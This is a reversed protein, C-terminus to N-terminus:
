KKNLKEIVGNITGLFRFPLLKSEEITKYLGVVHEFLQIGDCEAIRYFSEVGDYRVDIIYTDFDYMPSGSSMAVKIIVDEYHAVYTQTLTINSWLLKGNKTAAELNEILRILQENEQDNQKKQAM